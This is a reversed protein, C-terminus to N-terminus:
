QAPAAAAAKKHHHMPAATKPKPYANESPTVM